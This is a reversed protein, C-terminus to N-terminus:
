SAAGSAVFVSYTKDADFGDPSVRIDSAFGTFQMLYNASDTMDIEGISAFQSAGPTRISIDLSGAAPVASVELQVQHERFRDAAELAITRPGDAQSAGEIKGGFITGTM